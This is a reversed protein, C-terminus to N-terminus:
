SILYFRFRKGARTKETAAVRRDSIPYRPSSTKKHGFKEDTPWQLCLLFPKRMTRGLPSSFVFFVHFSSCCPHDLKPPKLEFKDNVEKTPQTWNIDLILCSKYTQISQPILIHRPTFTCRSNMYSKLAPSSFTWSNHTTFISSAQSSILSGLVYVFVVGCEEYSSRNTLNRNLFSLEVKYNWSVILVAKFHCSCRKLRNFMLLLHKFVRPLRVLAVEVLM